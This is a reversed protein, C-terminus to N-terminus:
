AFFSIFLCPVNWDMALGHTNLMAIPKNKIIKLYLVGYKPHLWTSSLLIHTGWKVWLWDLISFKWGSHQVGVWASTGFETCSQMLSRCLFDGFQSMVHFNRDASLLLKVAAFSTLPRMQMSLLHWYSTSCLFLVRCKLLWLWRLISPKNKSSKWIYSGMNKTCGPAAWYSIHEENWESDIWYPFKGDVIGSAWGHQHALSPAHSRRVGLFQM